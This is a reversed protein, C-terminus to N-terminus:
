NIFSKHEPKTTLKFINYSLSELVEKMMLIIKKVGKHDRKM